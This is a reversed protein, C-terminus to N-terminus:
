LEFGSGSSLLLAGGDGSGSPSGATLSADGGSSSSSERSTFSIAGGSSSGSKVTVGGIFLM